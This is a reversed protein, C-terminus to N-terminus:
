WLKDNSPTQLTVVSNAFVRSIRTGPGYPSSTRFFPILRSEGAQLLARPGLSRGLPVKLIVQGDIARAPTLVAGDNSWSVGYDWGTRDSTGKGKEKDLLVHHPFFLFGRILTKQSQAVILALARAPRHPLDWDSEKSRVTCKVAVPSLLSAWSVVSSAQDLWRQKSDM